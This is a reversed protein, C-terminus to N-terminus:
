EQTDVVYLFCSVYWPAFFKVFVNGEKAVASFTELTLKLVQGTPNYVIAPEEPIVPEEVVPPAHPAAPEPPTVPLSVSTHTKLFDAIRNHDRSGKFTEIFVGDKYLNIQPYGNIGNESCLDEHGGMLNNFMLELHFSCIISPRVEM